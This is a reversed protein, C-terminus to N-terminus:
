TLMGNNRLTDYEKLYAAILSPLDKYPSNAILGYHETRFPTTLTAGIRSSVGKRAFLGNGRDDSRNTIWSFYRNKEVAGALHDRELCGPVSSRDANILIVRPGISQVLGDPPPEFLVLYTDAPADCVAGETVIIHTQAAQGLAEAFEDVAYFKRPGVASPFNPDSLFPAVLATIKM